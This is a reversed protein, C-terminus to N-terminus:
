PTVKYVVGGGVTGGEFGVGYLSGSPDMLLNGAPFSGTSTGSFNALTTLTGDAALEFVSGFGGEGKRYTTGYLMGNKALLTTQPEDGVAASFSYLTDVTWAGGGSPTLSFVTGLDSTGGVLSTGYIVGKPGLTLSSYPLAPGSTPEFNALITYEGSASYEFVVGDDNNGGYGTTGFLNGNKDIILGAQPLYGDVSNGYPGGFSHLITGTGGPSVKFMSGNGIAGGEVTVGYLNGASDLVLTGIPQKGDGSVTGFTYLTTEVGTSSVEFVTGQGYAGGISNVGYLNGSRDRVVGFPYGGDSKGTFAYVVTEKGQPTLKFVTGYNSVGGTTAGYFNGKSDRALSGVPYAGDVCKFRSCFNYLVTETQALAPVTAALVAILVVAAATRSIRQQFIQRVAFSM